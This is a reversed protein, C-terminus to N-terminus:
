GINRVSLPKGRDQCSYGVATEYGCSLCYWQTEFVTGADFELALTQYRLEQACECYYTAKSPEIFTIQKQPLPPELEPPIEFIPKNDRAPPDGMGFKCQVVPLEPLSDDQTFGIICFDGLDLTAYPLDYAVYDVRAWVERGTYDMKQPDWEQLVLRDGEKYDRNNIRVEFRKKGSVAPEYFQPWIKLYHTKM